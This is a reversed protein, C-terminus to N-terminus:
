RILPLQRSATLGKASLEAYVRTLAARVTDDAFPWGAAGVADDVSLGRRALREGESYLMAIQARQVFAFMRDVVEGHGPVFRTGESAAGLAGDLVTPWSRVRTDDGFAPDAGEELLDGVFIVDEAPVMVMLDGQTHAPGFHVIEVRVGGLDLGKVLSIPTNPAVAEDPVDVTLSEHGISVEAGVGALGYWHDWHAHTLVVRDVPRGAVVAASEALERGQAPTSGTDIMLVHEDGVVLGVNVRAPECRAVWTRATLQQWPGTVFDMPEAYRAIM